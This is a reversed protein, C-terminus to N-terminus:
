LFLDVTLKVKTPHACFFRFLYRDKSDTPKAAAEPESTPEKVPRGIVGPNCETQTTTQSIVGTESVGVPDPKATTGAETAADTPATGTLTSETETTLTVNSLDIDIDIDEPKTEVIRLQSNPHSETVTKYFKPIYIKRKKNLHTWGDMVAMRETNVNVTYVVDPYRPMCIIAEEITDMSSHVTLASAQSQTDSGYAFTSFAQSTINEDNGDKDMSRFYITTTFM